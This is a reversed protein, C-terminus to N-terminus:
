SVSVQNFNVKGMISSNETSELFESKSKVEIILRLLWSNKYNQHQSKTLCFNKLIEFDIMNMVVLLGHQNSDKETM